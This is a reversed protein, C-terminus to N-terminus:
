QSLHNRSIVRQNMPRLEKELDKYYAKISHEQDRVRSMAEEESLGKIRIDREMRRRNAVASPEDLLVYLIRSEVDERLTGVFRQVHEISRVGEVLLVGDNPSHIHITTPEDQKGTKNSYRDFSLDGGGLCRTRLAEEVVEGPHYDFVERSGRENRPLTDDDTGVRSFPIGESNLLRSLGTSFQTKGSGPQGDIVIADFLGARIRDVSREFFPYFERQLASPELYLEQGGTSTLHAVNKM